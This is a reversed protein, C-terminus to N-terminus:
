TQLKGRRLLGGVARGAYKASLRAIRLAPYLFSLAPPLRWRTWEAMTPLFAGDVVLRVRRWAREHLALNLRLAQWSTPIAPSRALLAEAFLGALEEVGPLRALAAASEPVPAELVLRALALAVGIRRACGMERARAEIVTWDGCTGARLREALDAVWGLSTWQHKSGHICLALTLEEPPLCRVDRGAVRERATAKWWAEEATAEVPFEPDSRWHLEVVLGAPSALAVHYHAHSELQAAELWHPLEHIPCYGRGRLLAQAAPLDRRDLLIDLDGFERLGPDAYAALALTPGKYHVARVGASDLAADLAALERAFLENRRRIRGAEAWTELRVATPVLAPDAQALHRDLLPRLGHWRALELVRDWDPGARLAGDLRARDAERLELRACARLLEVEPPPRAV